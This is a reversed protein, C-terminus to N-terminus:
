LSAAPPGGHKDEDLPAPLQYRDLPSLQGHLSLRKVVGYFGHRAFVAVIQLRM